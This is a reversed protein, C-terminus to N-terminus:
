ENMMVKIMRYADKFSWGEFYLRTIEDVWFRLNM